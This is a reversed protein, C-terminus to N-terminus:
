RVIWDWNDAQEPFLGVHGSDSQRLEFRLPTHEVVWDTPVPGREIWRGQQGCGSSASGDIPVFRAAAQDWLGQNNPRADAAAPSPRDLVLPGFRELKRGGGFDLLAYQDPAFM